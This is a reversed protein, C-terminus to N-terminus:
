KRSVEDDSDNVCVCECVSCERWMVSPTLSSSSHCHCQTIPPLLPLCLPPPFPMQGDTPHVHDTGRQLRTELQPLHDEPLGQQAFIHVEGPGPHCCTLCHTWRHLDSSYKGVSTSRKIVLIWDAFINFGGLQATIQLFVASCRCHFTWGRQRGKTYVQPQALTGSDKEALASALSRATM